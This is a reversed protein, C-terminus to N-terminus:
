QSDLSVTFYYIYFGITRILLKCAILSFSKQNVAERYKWAKTYGHQKFIFDFATKMRNIYDGVVTDLHKIYIYYINRETGILTYVLVITEERQYLDLTSKIVNIFINIRECDYCVFNFPVKM